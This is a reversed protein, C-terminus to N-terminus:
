WVVLGIRTAYGMLLALGYAIEVGVVASVSLCETKTWNM